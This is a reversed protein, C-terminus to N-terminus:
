SNPNKQNAYTLFNDRFDTPNLDFGQPGRNFYINAKNIEGANIIEGLENEPRKKPAPIPGYRVKLVTKKEPKVEQDVSGEGTADMSNKVTQDLERLVPYQGGETLTRSFQYETSGFYAALADECSSKITVTPVDRRGIVLVGDTKSHTVINEINHWFTSWIEIEETEM